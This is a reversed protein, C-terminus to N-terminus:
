LAVSNDSDLACRAFTTLPTIIQYPVQTLHLYKSLIQDIIAAFAEGDSFAKTKIAMNLLNVGEKFDTETQASM